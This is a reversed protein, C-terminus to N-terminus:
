AASCLVSCGKENFYGYWHQYPEVFVLSKTENNM